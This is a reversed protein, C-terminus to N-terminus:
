RVVVPLYVTFGATEQGSTGPETTEEAPPTEENAPTATPLATPEATPAPDLPPPLQQSTGTVHNRVVLPLFFAYGSRVVNVALPQGQAASGQLCTVGYDANVLQAGTALDSDVRVTLVVQVPAGPSLLALNWTVAGGSEGCADGGSCSVYTTNAPM